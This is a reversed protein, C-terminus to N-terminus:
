YDDVNPKLWDYGKKFDIGSREDDLPKSCFGMVAKESNSLQQYISQPLQETIKYGQKVWWRVVTAILSWRSAGSRNEFTGHWVRSDWIIVDGAKSEIPVANKAEDQLVYEGSLHSGPIVSTCGNMQNQDELIIAVQMSILYEGLFPILSDIHMPAAIRNNRASYSRLIYNPESLDIAKHWQDNLFHMLIQQIIDSKLLLSVFRYNKNQLNYITEQGTDLRPIDKIELDRNTEALEKVVQLTASVTAEDFINTLRCYGYQKIQDIANNITTQL